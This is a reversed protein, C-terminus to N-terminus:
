VNSFMDNRAALMQVAVLLMGLPASVLADAFSGSFGIVVIFVSCCAGIILSQWWTYYVPSTMLADLDKSAEDVSIRDHVVKWYLRHTALLKGLDLGTAQKLFKTESTHTADDGFSILM